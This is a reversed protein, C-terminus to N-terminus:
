ILINHSILATYEVPGSVKVFVDKSLDILFFEGVEILLPVDARVLGDVFQDRQLDDFVQQIEGIFLQFVCVREIKVDPVGEPLLREAVVDTRLGVGVEASPQRFVLLFRPSIQEVIDELIMTAVEHGLEVDVGACLPHVRGENLGVDLLQGPEVEEAPDDVVEVGTEKLIEESFERVSYFLESLQLVQLQGVVNGRHFGSGHHFREGLVRGPEGVSENVVSIGIELAEIVELPHEVLM